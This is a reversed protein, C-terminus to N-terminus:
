LLLSLLGARRGRFRFRSFAYAAAAGLLVTGVATMVAIVMSNVFWSGFPHLPDKFLQEYNRGTASAFLSNSAALSGVASLSASVIYVIPFAAFVVAVLGVLHRWGLERAWRPSFLAPRGDLFRYEQEVRSTDTTTAM